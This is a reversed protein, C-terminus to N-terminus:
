RNMVTSPIMNRITNMSSRKMSMSMLMDMRKPYFVRGMRPIRRKPIRIPTTNMMVMLIAIFLKRIFTGIFFNTM